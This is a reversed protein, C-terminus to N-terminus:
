LGRKVTLKLTAATGRIKVVFDKFISCAEGNVAIITDGELLPPNAVDAPHSVDAPMDERKLRRIIVKGGVDGLDM